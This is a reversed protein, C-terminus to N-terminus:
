YLIMMLTGTAKPASGPLPHVGSPDGTPGPARATPHPIHFIPDLPICLEIPACTFTSKRLYQGSGPFFVSRFSFDYDSNFDEAGGGQPWPLQARERLCIKDTVPQNQLPLGPACLPCHWGRLSLSGETGATSSSNRPHQGEAPCLLPGWLGDLDRSAAGPEPHARRDTPSLKMFPEGLPHM